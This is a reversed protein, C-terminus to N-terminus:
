KKEKTNESFHSLGKHRVVIRHKFSKNSIDHLIFLLL